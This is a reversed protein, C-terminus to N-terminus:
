RKNIEDLDDGLDLNALLDLVELDTLEKDILIHDENNNDFRLSSNQKRSIDYKSILPSIVLASIMSSILGLAPFILLITKIKSVEWFQTFTISGTNYLVYLYSLIGLLSAIAHFGVSLWSYGYVKKLLFNNLLSPLSFVVTLLGILTFILFIFPFWDLSHIYALGILIYFPIEDCVYYWLFSTVPLFILHKLTNNM